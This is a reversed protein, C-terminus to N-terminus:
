KVESSVVGNLCGNDSVVFSSRTESPWGSVASRCTIASLLVHNDKRPLSAFRMQAKSQRLIRTGNDLRM